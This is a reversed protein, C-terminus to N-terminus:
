QGLAQQEFQAQLEAEEQSSNAMTQILTRIAAPNNQLQKLSEKPLSKIFGLAQTSKLVMRPMSSAAVAGAVVPNIAFGLGTAVAVGAGQVVGGMPTLSSFVKAAEISRIHELTRVVRPGGLEELVKITPRRSAAVISGTNKGMVMNLMTGAGTDSRLAREAQGVADAYDDYLTVTKKHLAALKSNQTFPQTTANTLSMKIQKYVGASASDAASEAAEILSGLTTNLGKKTEMIQKAAKAGSTPTLLNIEKQIRRLNASLAAEATESVATRKLGENLRAAGSVADNPMYEIAGSKLQSRRLVGQEVLDEFANTMSGRVDVKFSDDVAGYLEDLAEGYKRTLNRRAPELAAQFFKYQDDAMMKARQSVSGAARQTYKSILGSTRSPDKFMTEVVETGAGTSKGLGEVIIQKFIGQTEPPLEKAANFTKNWWGATAKAGVPLAQGVLSAATEVAVEKMMQEPTADYTGIYRGLLLAGAKSAGGGIGAGAIGGAVAGAAGGAIAGPPGGVMLGGLAGVGAGTAAGFAAGAASGAMSLGIDALDGVDKALEKSMEWADGGGLGAPDVARWVNKDKVVLGGQPDYKVDQFRSKLYNLKGKENGIGVVAAREVVGLPSVEVPQDPTNVIIEANKIGQSALFEEPVFRGQKGEASITRLSGDENVGDFSINQSKLFEQVNFKGM